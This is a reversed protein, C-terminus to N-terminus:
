ARSKAEQGPWFEGPARRSDHGFPEFAASREAKAERLLCGCSQEAALIRYIAYDVAEPTDAFALMDQAARLEKLTEGFQRRRGAEREKAAKAAARKATQRDRWAKITRLSMFNEKM